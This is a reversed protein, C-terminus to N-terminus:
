GHASSHKLLHTARGRFSISSILFRWSITSCIMELSLVDLTKSSCILLIPSRSRKIDFTDVSLIFGLSHSLNFCERKDNIGIFSMQLFDPSLSFFYRVM